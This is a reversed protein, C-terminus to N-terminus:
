PPTQFLSSAQTNLDETERVLASGSCTLCAVPVSGDRFDESARHYCSCTTSPRGEPRQM